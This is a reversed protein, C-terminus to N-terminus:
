CVVIAVMISSHIQNRSKGEFFSFQWWLITQFTYGKVAYFYMGSDVVFSGYGVSALILGLPVVLVVSCLFLLLCLQKDVPFMRAILNEMLDM